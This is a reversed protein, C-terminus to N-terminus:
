RKLLYGRFSLHKIKNYEHDLNINISTIYLDYKDNVNILNNNELFNKDSKKVKHTKILLEIYEELNVNINLEECKNNKSSDKILALQKLSNKYDSKVILLESYNKINLETFDNTLYIYQDEIKNYRDVNEFNVNTPILKNGFPSTKLFLYADHAKDINKKDKHYKKLIHVQSQNSITVINIPTVVSLVSIFSIIVLIYNIYKEKKYFILFLTIIEILIFLYSLFRLPTIGYELYRIIVSYIQVIVPILYFCPFRKILKGNMKFDNNKLIYYLIIGFVFAFSTIGFITNNPMNQTILIKFIYTYIILMIIIFVPLLIFKIVVRFFDNIKNKNTDLLAICLSPILYCGIGIFYVILFIKGTSYILTDFVLYIIMSCLFIIFYSVCVLFINNTIYYIFKSFSLKSKKLLFFLTISIVSIFYLPTFYALYKGFDNKTFISLYSLILAITIDLILKIRKKNKNEITTEALLSVPFILLLTTFAFKFQNNEFLDLATVTVLLFTTILIIFLTIPIKNIFEKKSNFLNLIKNKM